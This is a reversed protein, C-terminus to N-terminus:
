RTLIQTDYTLKDIDIKTKKKVSKQAKIWTVLTKLGQTKKQKKLRIISM